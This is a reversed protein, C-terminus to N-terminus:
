REVFLNAAVGAVGGVLSGIFAAVFETAWLTALVDVFDLIGSLPAYSILQLTPPMAASLAILVVPKWELLVHLAFSILLGAVLMQVVAHYILGSDM